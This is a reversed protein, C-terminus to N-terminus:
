KGCKKAVVEDITDNGWDDPVKIENYAGSRGVEEDTMDSVRRWAGDPWYRIKVWKTDKEADRRTIRRGWEVWLGAALLLVIVIVWTKM